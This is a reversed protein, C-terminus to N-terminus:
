SIDLRFNQAVLTKDDIKGGEERETDGQSDTRPSTSPSRLVTSYLGLRKYWSTSVFENPPNSVDRGPLFGKAQKFKGQM